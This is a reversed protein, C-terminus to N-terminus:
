MESSIHIVPHHAHHYDQQVVISRTPSLAPFMVTLVRANLEPSKCIDIFLLEVEGGTWAADLFNGEHVRILHSFRAIQREFLARSSEGIRVEVGMVDRIFGVDHEDCVRFWDYSHIVPGRPNPGVRPNDIVGQALLAASKGLFSGCDVIAGDGRFCDRAVHYLLKAEAPQLCGPPFRPDDTAVPSAHWPAQHFLVRPDVSNDRKQM